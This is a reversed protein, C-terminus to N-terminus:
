DSEEFHQVSKQCVWMTRGSDLLYGTMASGCVFCRKHPSDHRDSGAQQTPPKNVTMALRGVAQLAILRGAWRSIGGRRSM